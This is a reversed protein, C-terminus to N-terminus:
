KVETKGWEVREGRRAVEVLRTLEAVVLDPRAQHIHHPSGRAIVHWSRTSMSALTSQEHAWVTQADIAQQTWGTKDREPDQSMVLLPLDGFSTLRGAEHGSTEFDFWEPLEAGIYSTRCMEADINGRLRELGKPVDDHCRGRLREWGIATRLKLWRAERARKPRETDYWQLQGPLEDVQTPFSADLFAIGVAEAPFERAYERVYYGGASAGVLVFPPRIGAADLLAHQERVITEADHPGSHPESWGLGSRDYSCVRTVLSLQPQITQWYLVDDGAGTNLLITPSGSGTCDLHMAHGNVQYLRGLPPYQARQRVGAIVNYLAGAGVLLVALAILRLAIRM